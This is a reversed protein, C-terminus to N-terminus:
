AQHRTAHNRGACAPVNDGNPAHMRHYNATDNLAVDLKKTHTSRCWVPSAYVAVSYVPALAGTRLTSTSAGWSSGALWGAVCGALWGALWVASSVTGPM